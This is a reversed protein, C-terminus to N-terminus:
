RAGGPYRFYRRLCRGRDRGFSFCYNVANYGNDKYLSEVLDWKGNVFVRAEETEPRPQDPINSPDQTAAPACSTFLLISTLLILFIKKMM